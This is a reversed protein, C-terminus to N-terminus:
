YNFISEFRHLTYLSEYVRNNSYDSHTKYCHYSCWGTSETIKDNQTVLRVCFLNGCVDKMTNLESDLVIHPYFEVIRSANM